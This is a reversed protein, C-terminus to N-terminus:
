VHEISNHLEKCKSIYGEVEAVGVGGGQKFDRNFVTQLSDYDRLLEDINRDIGGESIVIKSCEAMLESERRRLVEYYEKFAGSVAKGFGERIRGAVVERINGKSGPMLVARVSDSILEFVEKVEDIDVKSALHQKRFTHDKHSGFLVCHSCIKSNSCTECLLELPKQHEHCVEVMSLYSKEEKEGSQQFKRSRKIIDIISINKPIDEAVGKRIIVEVQCLPCSFM